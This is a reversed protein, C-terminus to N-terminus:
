QKYWPWETAPDIPCEITTFAQNPPTVLDQPCASFDSYLWEM